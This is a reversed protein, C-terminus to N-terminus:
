RADEIDKKKICHKKIILNNKIITTKKSKSGMVDTGIDSIVIVCIVINSNTYYLVVKFLDNVVFVYLVFWVIYIVNLLM